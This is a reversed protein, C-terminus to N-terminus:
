NTSQDNNLYIQELDNNNSTKKKLNIKTLLNSLKKPYTGRLEQNFINVDDNYINM